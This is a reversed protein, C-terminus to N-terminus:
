KEVSEEVFIRFSVSYSKMRGDHKEEFDVEIRLAFGSGFGLEIM